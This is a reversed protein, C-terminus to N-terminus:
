RIDFPLKRHDANGARVLHGNQADVQNKARQRLFTCPVLPVSNLPLLFSVLLPIGTLGALFLHPVAVDWYSPPRSWSIWRKSSEAGTYTGVGYHTM